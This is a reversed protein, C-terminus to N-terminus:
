KITPKIEAVSQPHQLAVDESEDADPRDLFAQEAHDLPCARLCDCTPQFLHAPKPSPGFSAWLEGGAISVRMVGSPSLLCRRSAAGSMSGAIASRSGAAAGADRCGVRRVAARMPGGSGPLASRSGGMGQALAQIPAEAIEERLHSAADGRRDDRKGIEVPQDM